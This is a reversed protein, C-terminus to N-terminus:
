IINDNNCVEFDNYVVWPPWRSRHTKWPALKDRSGHRPLVRSWTIHGPSSFLLSRVMLLCHDLMGLCVMSKHLCLSFNPTQHIYDYYDNVIDPYPPDVM